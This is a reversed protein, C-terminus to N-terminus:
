PFRFRYLLIVHVHVLVHVNLPAIVIFPFKVVVLLELPFVLVRESLVEPLMAIAEPLVRVIFLDCAEEETM